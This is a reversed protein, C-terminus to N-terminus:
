VAPVDKATKTQIQSKKWVLYESLLADYLMEGVHRAGRANFHTFDKSALSPDNQVWSVMSNEGGMTEYLDWFACDTAFAANRMADRIKTINPYSVYEGGVKRSMDSPGIVLIDVDPAARKIAKLQSLFLREYFGYNSTPNPVVNIGYQMVILRVNNMRLQQSLLSSKIIEYGTGSSGRMPFNDVAIGKNGDLFVGLVIPSPGSFNLKVEQSVLGDYLTIKKANSSPYLVKQMFQGDIEISLRTTDASTYLLDVKNFTRVKPYSKEACRFRLWSSETVKSVYRNKILTDWTFKASDFPVMAIEQSVTDKKKVKLGTDGLLLPKITKQPVLSDYVKTIITDEGVKVAVTGTYVFSAGGIGYIGQPQRRKGYIAYKRWDSSESQRISVRSRSVDIPLIIGPGSGGFRLQLKNRLYDSIRDGELQSDGYHLIRFLQNDGNELAYLAKFFHTLGGSSGSKYQIRKNLEPMKIASDLEAVVDNDYNSTDNLDIDGLVSDLNVVVTNRPEFLDSSSTFQLRIHDGLWHEGSPFMLVFIGLFANVALLIYFIRWPSIEKTRHYKEHDLEM